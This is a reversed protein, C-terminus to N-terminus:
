DEEISGKYAHVDLLSYGRPSYVQSFTSCPLLTHGLIELSGKLVKIQLKGKFYFKSDDKLIIIAKDKSIIKFNMFESVDKPLAVEEEDEMHDEHDFDSTESQFSSNFASTDMESNTENESEKAGNSIGGGNYFLDKIGDVSINENKCHARKQSKHPM